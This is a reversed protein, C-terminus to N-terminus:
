RTTIAMTAHVKDLVFPNSCATFFVSMITAVTLLAVKKM